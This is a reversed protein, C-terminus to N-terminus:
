FRRSWSSMPSTPQAAQQERLWRERESRTAQEMARGWLFYHVVGLVALSGVVAFFWLAWGQTSVILFVILGIALSMNLLGLLWRDRGSLPPLPAYFGNGNM